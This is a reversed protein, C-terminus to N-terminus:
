RQEIKVSRIVVPDVPRGNNQEDAPVVAIRDVTDMGNSVKGV